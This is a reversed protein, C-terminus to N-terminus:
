PSEPTFKISDLISNFVPEFTKQESAPYTIGFDYLRFGVVTNEYHIGVFEANDLSYSFVVKTCGYGDIIDKQFTTIKVDKYGCYSLYALYEAETREYLYVSGTIGLSIQCKEGLTPHQFSYSSGDEGNVEMCKWDAPVSLTFAGNDFVKKNDVITISDDTQDQSSLTTNSEPDDLVTSSQTTNPPTSLQKCGAFIFVM